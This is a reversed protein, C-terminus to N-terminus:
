TPLTRPTFFPRVQAETAGVDDIERAAADTKVEAERYHEPGTM